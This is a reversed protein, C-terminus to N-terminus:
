LVIIKRLTIPRGEHRLVLIYAGPSVDSNLLIVSECDGGAVMRGHTDFLEYSDPRQAVGEIFIKRGVVPNPFVHLEDSGPDWVSSPDLIIDEVGISDIVETFTEYGNYMARFQNVEAISDHTFLDHMWRAPFTHYRLTVQLDALGDRGDLPIRYEIRDIGATSFQGYDADDKANGWIAVTDYVAHTTRFGKPLLRNDKKPERAANLRTTVNGAVDSMVMEYIQVDDASFAIEHHAEYPLDRGAINGEADIRGNRYVTDGSLDDTLSVQLWAV